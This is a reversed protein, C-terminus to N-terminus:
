RKTVQRNNNTSLCLQHILEIGLLQLNFLNEWTSIITSVVDANIRFSYFCNPFYKNDQIKGHCFHKQQLLIVFLALPQEYNYNNIPVRVLVGNSFKLAVDSFVYNETQPRLKNSNYLFIVILIFLNNEMM